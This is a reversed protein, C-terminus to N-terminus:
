GLIASYICLNLSLPVVTIIVACSFLLSNVVSKNITDFKEKIMEFDDNKIKGKIKNLYEEILSMTVVTEVQEKHCIENKCKLCDDKIDM